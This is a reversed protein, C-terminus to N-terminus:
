YILSVNTRFLNSNKLFNTSYDEFFFACVVKAFLKITGPVMLHAMLYLVNELVRRLVRYAILRWRRQGRLNFQLGLKIPKEIKFPYAYM